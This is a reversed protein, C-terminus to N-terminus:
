VVNFSNRHEIIPSCKSLLLVLDKRRCGLDGIKKINVTILTRRKDNIKHLSEVIETSKPPIWGLNVYVYKLLLTLLVQGNLAAM